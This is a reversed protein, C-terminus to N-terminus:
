LRRHHAENEGVGRRSLTGGHSVPDLGFGHCGPHPDQAPPTVTRRGSLTQGVLHYRLRSDASQSRLSACTGRGPNVASRGPPQPRPDGHSVNGVSGGERPPSASEGPITVGAPVVGAPPTTGLVQRRSTPGDYLPIPPPASGFTLVGGAVRNVVRQGWPEERFRLYLKADLRRFLEGLAPGNAADAALANLDELQAMAARVEAEVDLPAPAMSEEARFEAALRERRARLDNFFGSMAHRQHEDEALALNRGAIDLQRELEAVEAQKRVLASPDVGAAREAEALVRIKAALWDTVAPALVRQRVAHLVFAAAEEGAVQNCRCAQGHSQMYLGCKYKYSTPGKSSTRYLPWGCAMDFVRCGLPNRAPDQSRPKRRQTGAREDLDQLLRRHRGPDVLPEFHAPAEIRVGAPNAVAKPHGDTRFDAEGLPRPGEPTFRLQDGVSRRGYSVVAVILPNRAIGLITDQHWVGSTVHDVGRDRRGRGAGPSPIGEGTLAAAVRSAPMRELMELIRLCVELEAEATPQWVVHHGPKKVSEGEDLQRVMTGDPGVLWRRFGYPPRGGTSYGGAALAIQSSLIRRALDQRFKGAKDYDILDAITEVLERRGGKTLPPAIKDMFVLTVGATRLETELRIADLADDPRALRDRTPILVHSVHLDERVARFLADLAPRSLRNGKVGYDLFLDGDVARGDDIMAKIREPTGDFHLGYRDAQQRAWNVYPGPTTEHEGGSDRTYFLARGRDPRRSM